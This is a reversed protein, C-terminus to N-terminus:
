PRTSKTPFWRAVAALLEARVAIMRRRRASRREREWPMAHLDANAIAQHAACLGDYFGRLRQYEPDSRYWEAFTERGRLGIYRQIRRGASERMSECIRALRAQDQALLRAAGEAARLDSALRVQDQALLRAAGEATRLARALRSARAVNADREAAVEAFDDFTVGIEHDIVVSRMLDKDDMM